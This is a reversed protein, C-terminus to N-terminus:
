TRFRSFSAAASSLNNSESARPLDDNWIIPAFWTRGGGNTASNNSSQSSQQQGHKYVNKKELMHPDNMSSTSDPEDAPDYIAWATRLRAIEPPRYSWIFIPCKGCIYTYQLIAHVLPPATCWNSTLDFKTYYPLDPFFRQALRPLRLLNRRHPDYTVIAPHGGKRRWFLYAPWYILLGYM